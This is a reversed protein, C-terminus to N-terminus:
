TEHAKRKRTKTITRGTLPGQDSISFSLETLLQM